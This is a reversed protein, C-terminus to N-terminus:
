PQRSFQLRGQGEPWPEPLPLPEPARAEFSRVFQSIAMQWLASEDGAALGTGLLSREAMEQIKVRWAQRPVYQPQPVVHCKSCHKRVTDVFAADPLTDPKGDLGIIPTPAPAPTQPPAQAGVLVFSAPILSYFLARRIM